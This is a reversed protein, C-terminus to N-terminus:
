IGTHKSLPRTGVLHLYLKEESFSRHVGGKVLQQPDM